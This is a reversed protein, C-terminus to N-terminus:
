VWGQLWIHTDKLQQWPITQKCKSHVAEIEVLSVAEEETTPLVLQTVIFHKEKNVPIVATWKSHRLKKPNVIRKISKM